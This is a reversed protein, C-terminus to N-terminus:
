AGSNNSLLKEKEDNEPTNVEAIWQQCFDSAILPRSFYYGQLSTCGRAQLFELQKQTEVGEATVSFGLVESLSLIAQIIAQDDTNEIVGRTFSHDIKVYDFPLKKLYSLSSYGTGFDDLAFRVGISRLQEMASAAQEIDELLATETLEFVLRGAELGTDNIIQRVLPVFNSRHIQESSINISLQPLGPTAALFSCADELIKEGLAWILGSTEAVPVFDAPSIQGIVPSNWRVLAEAGILELNQADIIPQYHMYFEDQRLGVRMHNEIRVQNLITEEMEPLFFCYSDKGSSKAEYMATDAQRFVADINTSEAGLMTVGISVTVHLDHEDIRIPEALLKLAKEAVNSAGFVVEDENHVDSPLLIAFEDGGVRAVLDQRRCCAQLRASVEKLLLDGVSHGLSDNITKFNDLDLLMLAGISANRRARVLVQELREQLLRRNPLSTLDDHYLLHEEREQSRSQLTVYRVVRELERAQLDTYILTDRAGAELAQKELDADEKETLFIFPAKCSTDDSIQTLIQLSSIDGAAKGIFCVDFHWGHHNTILEFASSADTARFLCLGDGYLQELVNSFTDFVDDNQEVVFINLGTKVPV